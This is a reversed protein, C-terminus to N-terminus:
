PLRAQREKVAPTYEALKASIQGVKIKSDM